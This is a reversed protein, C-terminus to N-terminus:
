TLYHRAGLQWQNCQTFWSTRLLKTTGKVASDRIETQMVSYISLLQIPWTNCTNFVHGLDVFNAVPRNFSNLLNTHTFM